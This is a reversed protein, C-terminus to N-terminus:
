KGAVCICFSLSTNSHQYAYNEIKRPRQLSAGYIYPRSNSANYYYNLILNRLFKYYLPSVEVDDEVVFAFEHDSSPWWAELLQAQLGATQTRYHVVKEGFSWRFGDVLDLIGRSEHLQRDADSDPLAFHDIHLHLHVRDSLYDAAALSRLCRSLSDLRDFALLKIVFTFSNPIQPHLSLNPNPNPNPNLSSNHYSLFSLAFLSLLLFLLLPLLQRKPGVM